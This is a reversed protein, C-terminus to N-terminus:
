IVLVFSGSIKISLTEFMQANPNQIQKTSRIQQARFRTGM